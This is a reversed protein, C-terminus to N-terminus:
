IEKARSGSTDLEVEMGSLHHELLYDAAKKTDDATHGAIFLIERDGKEILKIVARGQSFYDPDCEVGQYEEWLGNDCPNGLVILDRSSLKSPSFQSYVDPDTDIGDSLLTTSIYVGTLSDQSNANDGVVILTGDGLFDPFDSLDVRDRCECDEPCSTCSEGIDCIDNGCCPTIPKEKCAGTDYDYVSRFCERDTSCEPCDGPCTSYSEGKECANDGCCPTVDTIICKQTTYDFSANQCKGAACEPCDDPCTSFTEGQECASDGCCPILQEHRCEYRTENGCTDATCSDNDDCTEPCGPASRVDGEQQGLAKGAAQSFSDSANSLRDTIARDCGLVLLFVIMFALYTLKRMKVRKMFFRHFVHYLYNKITPSLVRGEM